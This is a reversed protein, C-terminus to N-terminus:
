TDRSINIAPFRASFDKAKAAIRIAVQRAIAKYSRAAEGDPDAIVSPRVGHIVRSDGMIAIEAPEPLRDVMAALAHHRSQAVLKTPYVSVKFAIAAIVLGVVVVAVSTVLAQGPRPPSPSAAPQDATATTPGPTAM